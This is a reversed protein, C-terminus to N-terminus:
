GEHTEPLGGQPKDALFTERGGYRIGSPCCFDTIIGPIYSAM